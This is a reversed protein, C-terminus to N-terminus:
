VQPLTSKRAKIEANRKKWKEDSEQKSKKAGRDMAFGAVAAAGAAIGSAIKGMLSLSQGSGLGGAGVAGGQMVKGTKPNYGPVNKLINSSDKIEGKDKLPSGVGKIKPLVVGNNNRIGPNQFINSAKKGPKGM